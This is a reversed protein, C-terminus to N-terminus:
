MRPYEIKACHGATEFHKHSLSVSPLWRWLLRCSLRATHSLIFEFTAHCHASPELFLQLMQSASHALTHCVSRMMTNQYFSQKCDSKVQFADLWAVFSTSICWKLRCYVNTAAPSVQTESDKGANPARMTRPGHWQLAEDLRSTCLQTMPLAPLRHDKYYRLIHDVTHSRPM